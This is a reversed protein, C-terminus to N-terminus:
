TSGGTKGLELDRETIVGECIWCAFDTFEGEWRENLLVLSYVLAEFQTNEQRMEHAKRFGCTIIM